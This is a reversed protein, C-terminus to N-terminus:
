FEIYNHWRDRTYRGLGDAHVPAEHFWHGDRISTSTPAKHVKAGNETLHFWHGDNFPPDDDAYATIAFLLTTLLILLPKM